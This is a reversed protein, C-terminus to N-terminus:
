SEVNAYLGAKEKRREAGTPTPTARLVCRTQAQAQMHQCKQSLRCLFSSNPYSYVPFASHECCCFSEREKERRQRPKGKRALVVRCWWWWGDTMLLPLTYYTSRQRSHGWWWESGGCEVVTWNEVDTTSCVTTLKLHLCGSLPIINKSGNEHSVFARDCLLCVWCVFPFKESQSVKKWIELTVKRCCTLHSSLCSEIEYLSLRLPTTLAFTLLSGVLLQLLRTM